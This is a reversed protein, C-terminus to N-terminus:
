HGKPCQPSESMMAWPEGEKRGAMRKLFYYGLWMWPGWYVQEEGAKNLDEGRQRRTRAAEEYREQLRILRRLLAQPAGEGGERESKVMRVLRHALAHVTDTSEVDCAQLGFRAWPVAQGLFAVADKRRESGNEARWKLAKAQGEAQGADAAAQYLPYKGGVLAIGASAHIGPHEAAFRTLDARVARALEAVADWSGVFFLDDGGSYISYLRQGVGAKEQGIREALSEVWGEFYLSVAFSLAAVRSLTAAPGFGQSFLQGLNDVDMRLVGLRKVGTSQFEMVSFPKVSGAVPLDDVRGRLEDIEKPTIIPTVNVLPRRGVATHADPRLTDLADDKLALVLRLGAGDQPADSANRYVGGRLGFAALVDAWEGPEVKLPEAPVNPEQEALWLYCAQRLADGLEEYSRCPPCKRVDKDKDKKTQPHERGCVQCQKDENGGHGEPQFLTALEDGLEAFRRQKAERLNRAVDDWRETIRGDYFDAAALPVCGIALYLDGRHHDLLIRSVARQIAPLRDADTPRALLYFNGGGQYLLNTIPLDLHHLVFRAVAETLLQLYFSRGRLASAAGRATITYIFDQVGSIDGGVLVAVTTDQLIQPPPVAAPRQGRRKAETRKEYWDRLALLLADLTSEEEGVLGAALAATTRSHDYLSVDPLSRYYASPICWTHRQLLLLLNELYTPLSNGESKEHAQALQQAEKEFARWLGAYASRVQAEDWAPGPFLSKEELALAALPWYRDAPARQEDAELRCFISLLQQPQASEEEAREGASLWDALATVKTAYGQLPQDHHGLVPYLGSQWQSPVYRRVFEDGVEAHKGKQWGARQGFKGVDHLLGALAALYVGDHTMRDDTM